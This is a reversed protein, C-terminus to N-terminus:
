WSRRIGLGLTFDVSPTIPPIDEQFSVNWRWEGMKGAVGFLFNSPWGDLVSDNFRQMRPTALSWQVLGSLSATLNREVTLDTFGSWSRMFTQYDNSARVTAGGVTAYLHWRDWSKRGLAMLSFDARQAGVTNEQTPIRAVGRLSVIDHGGRSGWAKWKASLRIDNLALTRRPVSLLVIGHRVALVQDYDGNPFEERGNNPLGLHQHWGSIFGDLIGGGTTEWALRAGLELRHTVGWRIGASSIVRELDLALFHSATSDRQFINAYGVTFYSEVHGVQVLDAGEVAHTYATRQLPAQEEFTLPGFPTQAALYAPCVGFLAAMLTVVSPAAARLLQPARTSNM